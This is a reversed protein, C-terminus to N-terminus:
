LDGIEEVIANFESIMMATAGWVTHGSVDFYKARVKANLASIFISKERVNNKELLAEIPAEILADVERPDPILEPREAAFGIYPKVLYRSPPIYVDSLKGLIEVTDPIVGAEEQTERLATAITDIDEKEMKGGPFSIQGSHTGKYVPRLMLLTHLKNDIPYLLMLVAGIRVEPDIKLAEDATPRDYSMMKNHALRGPLDGQLATKLRRIFEIHM